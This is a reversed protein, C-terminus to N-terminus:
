RNAKVFRAFDGLDHTEGKEAQKMGLLVSALLDQKEWLWSESLPVTRVPDLVIQGLENAYVNFAPAITGAGGLSIRKKSDLTVFESVLSFDNAKTKLIAPM